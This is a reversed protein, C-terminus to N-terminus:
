GFYHKRVPTQVQWTCRLGEPFVLLDRPGVREPNGEEPMITVERELQLCTKREEYSCPLHQGRPDVDTPFPHGKCRHHGRPLPFHHPHEDIGPSRIAGEDTLPGFSRM